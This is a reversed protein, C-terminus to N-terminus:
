MKILCMTIAPYKRPARGADNACMIEYQRVFMGSKRARPRVQPAYILRGNPGSVLICVIQLGPHMEAIM